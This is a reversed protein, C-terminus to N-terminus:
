KWYSSLTILPSWRILIFYTLLVSFCRLKMEANVTASRTHAMPLKCSVSCMTHSATIMIHCLPSLLLSHTEKWISTFGPSLFSFKNNHNTKSCRMNISYFWFSVSILSLCLVQKHVTACWVVKLCCMHLRPVTNFAMTSNM